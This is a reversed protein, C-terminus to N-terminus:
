SGICGDFMPRPFVSKDVSHQQGELHRKHQPFMKENFQPLSRASTCQSLIKLSIALLPWKEAHLRFYFSVEPLSLILTM